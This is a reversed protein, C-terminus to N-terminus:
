FQSTKTQQGRESRTRERDNLNSCTFEYFIVIMRDDYHKKTNNSYTIEESIYHLHFINKIMQRLRHVNESPEKHTLMFNCKVESYSGFM